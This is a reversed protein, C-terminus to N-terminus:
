PTKKEYYFQLSYKYFLFFIYDVKLKVQALPLDEDKRKDKDRSTNFTGAEKSFKDKSGSKHFDRKGKGFYADNEKEGTRAGNM